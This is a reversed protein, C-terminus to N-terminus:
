KEKVGGMTKAYPFLSFYEITKHISEIQNLLSIVRVDPDEPLSNFLLQAQLGYDEDLSMLHAIQNQLWMEMRPLAIDKAWKSAKHVNNFDATLDFRFGDPYTVMEQFAERESENLYGLISEMNIGKLINVKTIKLEDVMRINEVETKVERLQEETVDAGLYVMANRVFNETRYMYFKQQTKNLFEQILHPHPRKIKQGDKDWWDEKRDETILIIPTPNEENKAKDIIQNWVILDGYLQQYRFQGYTRFGQKDKDEKDKFGPPVDHQYRDKGEKEIENIRDQSYSDGTIGDLLKIIEQQIANSDPLQSIEEELQEQLRENSQEISDVFFHFKETMIYPHKSKVTSLVKTAEDKLKILEKSLLAYGEKQLSMNAEYNFFYELAVQHPIWLRNTEKLKKLIKLLSRTSEKSTYKYFNILINTDVVIIAKEWLVKFEEDTYGIFGRFQELM